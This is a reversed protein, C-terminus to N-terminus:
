AAAAITPTVTRALFVSVRERAQRSCQRQPRGERASPAAEPAAHLLPHGLECQIRIFRVPHVKSPVAAAYVLASADPHGPVHLRMVRTLYYKAIHGGRKQRVPIHNAHWAKSGRQLKHSTRHNLVGSKGVSTGLGDVCWRHCRPHKEVRIARAAYAQQEAPRALVTSPESEREYASVVHPDWVVRRTTSPALDDQRTLPGANPPRGPVHLVDSM